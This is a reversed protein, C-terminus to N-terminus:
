GAKADDLLVDAMADAADHVLIRLNGVVNAAFDATLIKAQLFAKDQGDLRHDVHAALLGVSQAIMPGHHRTVPQWTSVDLMSKRDRALAHHGNRRTLHDPFRLGADRIM